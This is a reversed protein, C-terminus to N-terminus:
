KVTMIKILKRSIWRYTHSPTSDERARSAGQYMPRPGHSSALVERYSTSGANSMHGFADVM